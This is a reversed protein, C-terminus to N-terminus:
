AGEHQSSASASQVTVSAGPHLRVQGATVVVDGPKLGQTVIVDNGVQRGVKVPVFEATGRHRADPGHVVVVSDGFSSTQIATLPVVLATEEPLVVSATVYMGPHLAHDPNALTAQVIVNRTEGNIVPEITTVNGIFSRHLYADSTVNVPQGNRLAAIDQQPLTFNVFLRDLNTLTVVPDGANLYQGLNVNRVGIEGDFPAVITKQVIQAKDRAVSAQAQAFESQRQQLIEKAEAGSSALELSRNLQIRAFGAKAQADALAAREPADFLQILIKGAKVMEGARFGIETVRGPLESALTVGQVPQLAGIAVLADPVTKPSVVVAVVSTSSAMMVPAAHLRAQRWSFLGLAIIVIACTVSVFRRTM